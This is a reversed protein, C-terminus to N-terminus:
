QQDEVEEEGEEEDEEEHTGNPLQEERDHEEDDQPEQKIKPEQEEDQEHQEQGQGQTNSAEPAEQLVKKSEETGPEPVEGKVKNEALEPDQRPDPVSDEDIHWGQIARIIDVALQGNKRLAKDWHQPIGDNITFMRAVSSVMLHRLESGEETNAYVYQIRRLGPYTDSDAYWQRVGKLVSRKLNPIQWKESMYYLEFQAALDNEERIPPIYGSYLWGVFKNFSEEEEDPLSFSKQKADAQKSHFIKQFFISRYCLLKEHIVWRANESGASIEVM